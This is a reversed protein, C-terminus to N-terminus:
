PQMDVSRSTYKFSCVSCHNLLRAESLIGKFSWSKCALYVALAPTTFV